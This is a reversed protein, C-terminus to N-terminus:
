IFMANKPYESYFENLFDEEHGDEDYDSSYMESLSFASPHKFLKRRIKQRETTKFIAPLFRESIDDAIEINLHRLFRKKWAKETDIYATVQDKKPKVYQLYFELAEKKSCNRMVQINRFMGEPYLYKPLVKKRFYDAINLAEFTSNSKVTFRQYREFSKFNTQVILIIGQLSIELSLDFQLNYHNFNYETRARRHDREYNHFDDTGRYRCLQRWAQGYIWNGAPSVRHPHKKGEYHYCFDFSRNRYDNWRAAQTGLSIYFQITQDRQVFSNIQNITKM